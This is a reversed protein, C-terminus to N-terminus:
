GVLGRKSDFKMPSHHMVIIPQNTKPDVALLPRNKSGRKGMGRDGSKHEWNYGNRKSGKRPHYVVSELDGVVVAYKSPKQREKPALEIVHGEENGHFRKALRKAKQLPNSRVKARHRQKTM